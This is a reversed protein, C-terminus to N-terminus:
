GQPTFLLSDLGVIWLYALHRDSKQGSNAVDM